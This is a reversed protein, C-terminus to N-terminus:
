FGLRRVVRLIPGLAENKIRVLRGRVHEVGRMAWSFWPYTLLKDKGAHYIREVLLFTMLHAIVLVPIGIVLRGSAIMVLAFVKLPEAVAFPGLFLLLIAARPLDAVFREFAEVARWSSVWRVAPRYLPKALEDAIIVSAILIRLPFTILRKPSM